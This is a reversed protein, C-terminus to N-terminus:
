NDKNFNTIHQCFYLFEQDTLDTRMTNITKHVWRINDMSYGRNSDIRDLSATQETCKEGPNHFRIPLGSLACKGQQKEYLSWINDITINCSLGRRKAGHGISYFYRSPITHHKRKKRNIVKLSKTHERQPIGFKKLAKSIISKRKFGAQVAVDKLSLNQRVYFELLFDKTIVKSSDKLSCRHLGFKTRAQVISNISKIDFEKAITRESKRQQIYHELLFEKTLIDKPKM